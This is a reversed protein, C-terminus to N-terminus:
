FDFGAYILTGKKKKTQHGVDDFSCLMYAKNYRCYGDIMWVKSSEKKLKVYEGTSLSEIPYYGEATISHAKHKM